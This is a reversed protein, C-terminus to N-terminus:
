LRKLKRSHTARNGMVFGFDFATEIAEWYKGDLMMEFIGRMDEISMDYASPIVSTDHRGDPRVTKIANEFMKTM